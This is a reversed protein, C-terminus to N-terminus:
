FVGAMGRAAAVGAAAALVMLAVPRFVREGGALFLRGGLWDGALLLPACILALTAARGDIIGAVLGSAVAFVATAAFYLTLSARAAAPDVPANLFHAVVPPGPMAALGNLLGSVIGAAAPRRGVVSGGLRSGRWAAVLALLAAAAVALRSLGTPALRLAVMGLPTGIMAGALLPALSARDAHRWARPANVIGVTLQLLAAVAVALRPSLVTSLLPVAAIAFGFGTLGRLMGSALVVLAAVAVAPAGLGTCALGDSLDAAGIM